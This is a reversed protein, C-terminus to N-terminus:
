AIAFEGASACATTTLCAPYRRPKAARSRESRGRAAELASLHESDICTLAARDGMGSRWDPERWRRAAPGSTATGGCGSRAVRGWEQAVRAAWTAGVARGASWGE